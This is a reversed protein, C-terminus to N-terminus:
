LYLHPQWLLYHLIKEIKELLKQIRYFGWFLFPLSIISWVICHSPALYGEMIHMAYVNSLFVLHQQFHLSLFM